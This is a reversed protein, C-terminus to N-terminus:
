AATASAVALSAIEVPPPSNMLKCIKLATENDNCWIAIGSALCALGYIYKCTEKTDLRTTQITFFTMRDYTVSYLVHIESTYCYM